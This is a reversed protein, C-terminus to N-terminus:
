LPLLGKTLFAIEEKPYDPYRSFGPFGGWQFTFRTWEVFTAERWLLNAVPADAAGNPLVIAYPSGGSINAKIVWDASFPLEFPRSSLHLRKMNRWTHYEWHMGSSSLQFELSDPFTINDYAWDWRWESLQPHTGRLYVSGVLEYWARVSLPVPGVRREFDDMEASAGATPPIVVHDPDEFHYELSHLRPILMEVNARARRMTERAVAVADPYGASERIGEGCVLMDAWVAEHEGAQYRELWSAM